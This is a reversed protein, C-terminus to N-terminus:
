TKGMESGHVTLAWIILVDLGIMMMSWLPVATLFGINILASIMAVLIAIARAWVKGAFVGAGAAIVVIGAILQFWGWATYNVHVVLRDSSVYYDSNFLAVLGQIAHFIGLLIMIIGAFAILGTWPSDDIGGTQRPSRQENPDMSSMPPISM